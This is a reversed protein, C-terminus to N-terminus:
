NRTEPQSAGHLAFQNRLQLDLRMVLFLARPLGNAKFLNKQAPRQQNARRGEAEHDPIQEFTQERKTDAQSNCRQHDKGNDFNGGTIRGGKHQPHVCLRFGKGRQATLKPEIYRFRCAIKRPDTPQQLPIEAGGVGVAGRDGVHNGRSKPYGQRQREISKPQRRQDRKRRTDVRRRPAAFCAIDTDHSGRLQTNRHRIEPERHDEHQDKRDIQAPKGGTAKNAPIPAHQRPQM